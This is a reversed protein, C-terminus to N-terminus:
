RRGALISDIIALQKPLCVSRLDYNEKATERARKRIGRFSGPDSLALTVANAISEHDFFDVLLGNVENEIVERVPGTDSGVVLCGTSLAEICSWSLVFPYTLYVHCSSVQLLQTFVPYPLNGLFHVRQMDLSSKVEDLFIQKWTKGEPAKAGYSVGDGGVILARARPRAALIKPLARMFVHYGRYPELNRNVFTILEDKATLSFSEGTERRLTLQAAPNPKLIECDVGDFIVHIRDHAWHPHSLKQWNTPSLGYDTSELALLNNANKVRLRADEFFGEKAFEPDFGVDTGAAAYYFELFSLLKTTKWVDKVFLAEGWGPHAVVLDPVLGSARLQIMAQGCAEARIVKTEFESALPHINASSGRTPRYHHLTVGPVAQGTIALAHVQHGKNVLAPALHRFQGPFNQHIFLIRAM